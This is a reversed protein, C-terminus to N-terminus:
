DSSGSIFAITELILKVLYQVFDGCGIVIEGLTGLLNVLWDVLLYQLSHVSEVM